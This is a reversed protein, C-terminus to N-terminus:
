ERPGVLECAAILMNRAQVRDTVCVAPMVAAELAAM